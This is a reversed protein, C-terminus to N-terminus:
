PSDLLNMTAPRPKRREKTMALLRGQAGPLGVHRDMPLRPRCLRPPRASLQRRM